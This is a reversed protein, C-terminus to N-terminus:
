HHAGKKSDRVKANHSKLTKITDQYIGMRDIQVTLLM